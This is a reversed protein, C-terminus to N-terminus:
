LERIVASVKGIIEFGPTKPDIIVPQSNEGSTELRVLNKQTFKKRIFLRSGLKVAVIDGDRVRAKLDVTLFDGQLIGDASLGNDVSRVTIFPTDKKRFNKILEGLNYNGGSNFPGDVHVEGMDEVLPINYFENSKFVDEKIFLNM